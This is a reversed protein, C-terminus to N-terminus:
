QFKIKTLFYKIELAHVEAMAQANDMKPLLKLLYAVLADLRVYGRLRYDIMAKNIGMKKYYNHRNSAKLNKLKTNM